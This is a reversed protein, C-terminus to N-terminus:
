HASPILAPGQGRIEVIQRRAADLGPNGPYDSIWQSLLAVAADPGELEKALYALDRIIPFYDPSLSRARELVTMSQRYDKKLYYLCDGLYVYGDRDDPYLETILRYNKEAEDAKNEGWALNGKFILAEKSIGKFRDKFRMAKIAYLESLSDNKDFSATCSVLSYALAFETDIETARILEALGEKLEGVSALNWGKVLHSYAELSTTTLESISPIQISQSDKRAFMESIKMQFKLALSDVLPGLISEESDDKVTYSAILKEDELDNLDASLLYNPGLKKINGSIMLRGNCARAVKEAAATSGALEDENIGDDRITRAIRLPSVLQTHPFEYFKQTIADTLIRGIHVNKMREDGTQDAFALIALTPRQATGSSRRNMPVLWLVLIAAAAALGLAVVRNRKPRRAAAPKEPVQGEQWLVEYIHIPRAINKLPQVGHDYFQYSLKGLAISYIDHSILIRGAQAISQIRSAINVGDGFVDRDRYIVDGVHIGIRVEIKRDEPVTASRDNLEKQISVACNVANLVSEFDALFADGITKITRGKYSDIHKQLIDNHEQLLALALDENAQVKASYGVMDTFLIVSLKRTEM